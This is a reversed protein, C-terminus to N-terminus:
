DADSWDIVTQCYPCCVFQRTLDGNCKGCKWWDSIKVATDSIRVTHKNNIPKKTIQKKLADIAIDISEQLESYAFPRNLELNNIAESNTMGCRRFMIGILEVIAIQEREAM